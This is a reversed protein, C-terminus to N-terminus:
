LFLFVAGAVWKGGSTWLIREVLVEGGVVVREGAAVELDRVALPELRVGERALRVLHDPVTEGQADLGVGGVADSGLRKAGPDWARNALEAGAGDEVDVVQGGVVLGLRSCHGPRAELVVGEGRWLVDNDERAGAVGGQRGALDDLRLLLDCGQDSVLCGVPVLAFGCGGGAGGGEGGGLWM